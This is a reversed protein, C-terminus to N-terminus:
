AIPLVGQSQGTPEFSVSGNASGDSTLSLVTIRREHLTLYVDEAEGSHPTPRTLAWDVSTALHGACAHRAAIVSTESPGEEELTVMYGAPHKCRAGAAMAECMLDVGTPSHSAHDHDLM